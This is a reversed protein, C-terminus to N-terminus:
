DAYEDENDSEFDSTDSDSNKGKSIPKKQALQIKECDKALLQDNEIQYVRWRDGSMKHPEPTENSFVMVVNPTIFKLLQSNYKDAFADGDKLDELLKYNIEEFTNNSRAINFLFIDTTALPYKALAHCISSTKAMLNIGSLVRRAGFTSKIYKQFWTKGENGKKGIVWIIHRDTPKNVEKILEIQWPKLVVDTCNLDEGQKMYLDLADKLDKALAGEEAEGKGLIKYVNEGLAIKHKYEKTQEVMKIELTKADIEGAEHYKRKIEPEFYADDHEGYKLKVDSRTEELVKDVLDLINESGEKPTYKLHIKVHRTITDSRMSKFCIKCSVQQNRGM